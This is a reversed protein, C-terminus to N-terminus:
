LAKGDIECRIRRVQDGRGPSLTDHGSMTVQQGAPVTVREGSVKINDDQSAGQFILTVYASVEYSAQNQLLVHWDLGDHNPARDTVAFRQGLIHIPHRLAAASTAQGLAHVSAVVAQDGQQGIGYLVAVQGNPSADYILGGYTQGDFTNREPAHGAGLKTGVPTARRGRAMRDAGVLAAPLALANAQRHAPAAGLGFWTAPAAKWPSAPLVNGPLLGRESLEDIWNATTPFIRGDQSAAAYRSLAAVVPQVNDAEFRPAPSLAAARPLHMTGHATAAVAALTMAGLLVSVGVQGRPSRRSPSHPPRAPM